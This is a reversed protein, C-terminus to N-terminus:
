DLHKKSLDSQEGFHKEAGPKETQKTLYNMAPTLAMIFFFHEASMQRYVLKLYAYLDQLNDCRNLLLWRYYRFKWAKFFERNIIAYSIVAAIAKLNEGKAMTEQIMTATDDIPKLKTLEKSIRIITGPRLPKITLEKKRGFIGKIPFKIGDDVLTAGAQYEKTENM